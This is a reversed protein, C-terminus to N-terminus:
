FQVTLNGTVATEKYPFSSSSSISHRASLTFYAKSGVRTSASINNSKLESNQSESNGYIKQM